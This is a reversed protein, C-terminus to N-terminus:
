KTFIQSKSRGCFDCNRKEVKVTKNTKPTRKEYDIIDITNSKHRGDVCYTQKQDM